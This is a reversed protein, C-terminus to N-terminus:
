EVNSKGEEYAFFIRVKLLYKTILKTKDTVCYM